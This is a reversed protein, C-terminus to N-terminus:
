SDLLTRDGLVKTKLTTFTRIIKLTRHHLDAQQPKGRKTKSKAKEARETELLEDKWCGQQRRM